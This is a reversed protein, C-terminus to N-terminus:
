PLWPWKDVSTMSAAGDLTKEVATKIEQPTPPDCKLLLRGMKKRDGRLCYIASQNRPCELLDYWYESGANEEAVYSFTLRPDKFLPDSLALNKAHSAKPVLILLILKKSALDYSSLPSVRCLNRRAAAERAASSRDQQSQQTSSPRAHQQNNHNRNNRSTNEQPNNIWLFVVAFLFLVTEWKIGQSASSIWKLYRRWKMKFTEVKEEDFEIVLKKGNGTRRGKLTALGTSVWNSIDSSTTSATVPLSKGINRGQTTLILVGETSLAVGMDSMFAPQKDGNIWVKQLDGVQAESLTTLMSRKTDDSTSSSFALTLLPRNLLYDNYITLKPLSNQSHTSLFQVVSSRSRLGGTKVAVDSGYNRIIITARGYPSVMTRFKNRAVEDNGSCVAFAVPEGEHEKNFEEAIALWVLPIGDPSVRNVEGSSSTFYIAKVRNFDRNIFEDITSGDVWEVPSEYVSFFLETISDETIHTSTPLFYKSGHHYVAIIPIQPVGQTGTLYREVISDVAVFNALGNFDKALNTYRPAFQRSFGDYRSLFFVVTIPHQNVVHHFDHRNLVPCDIHIPNPFQQAFPHFPSNRQQQHGSEGDDGTLDYTKRKEEDSLINYAKQIQMFKERSGEESNQDPHYKM